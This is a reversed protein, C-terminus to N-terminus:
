YVTIKTGVLDPLPSVVTKGVAPDMSYGFLCNPLLCGQGFICSSCGTDNRLKCQAFDAEEPLLGVELGVIAGRPPENVRLEHEIGRTKSSSKFQRDNESGIQPSAM